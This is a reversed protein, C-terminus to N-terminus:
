NWPSTVTSDEPFNFKIFSSDVGVTEIANVDHRLKLAKKTETRSVSFNDLM